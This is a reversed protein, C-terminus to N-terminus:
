YLHEILNRNEAELQANRFELDLILAV